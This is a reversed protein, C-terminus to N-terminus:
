KTYNDEKVPLCIPKIYPTFDIPEALRILAIDHELNDNFEPHVVLEEVGISISEKICVAVGTEDDPMCDLEDSIDYKGFEVSKIQM